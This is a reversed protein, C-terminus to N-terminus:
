QSATISTTSSVPLNGTTIVFVNVSYSGSALGGSLPAFATGQAGSALTLGGTTVAVTQGASNKWVAFVVLSQSTSWVNTATVSIGNFSGLTGYAASNIVVSQSIPVIVDVTIGTAVGSLGALSSASLGLADHGAFLGTITITYNVSSGLNNAGTITFQSSAAATGNITVVVSSANLDGQAAVIWAKVSQGYGIQANNATSFKMTPAATDVLVEYTQGVATNGLSDTTNFSVHHVGQSFTAAVSFIVDYASAIPATQVAGSDIKYTVSAISVAQPGTAAYGISTNAQGTFVVSATSSYIVGSEPTPGTIALTPLPSVVGISAPASTVSKGGLVGSARLTVAGLSTPMTWTIPGFSFATDSGGSPIYVNTASLPCTAACSASLGIQIQTIATNLAVNGYADSITVDVYITAGTAAHSAPTTLGSEYYTLVTFTSAKGSDTCASAPGASAPAIGTGHLCASAASDGSILLVNSSTDTIKTANAQFLASSGAVTDLTFLASAQGLANTTVSTSMAGNFGAPLMSNAGYDAATTASEWSHAQALYLQIPVGAQAIALSASVNVKNGAPVNPLANPFTVGKPAYVTPVPSATSFTSTYLLKSQGAGAFSAAAYTGSVAASLQGITGWTPSQFYAFPLSVVSVAGSPCATGLDTTGAMWHHGNTCTIVSPLGIADLLGGGSLATLTFSYATLSGSNLAVTNGFKDALSFSIATDNEAGSFTTLSTKGTNTTTGNTIIYHNGTSAQSSAFAWTMMTPPGNITTITGASTVPIVASTGVAANVQAADGATNSPQFTTTATGASNTYATAPTFSFTTTAGYEPATFVIPVGAQVPLITATETLAASGAVYNANATPTVTTIHTTPNIVQISFSPGTYFAVSSADQVKSTFTSTFPYTGAPSTATFTMSDSGGPPIGAGTGIVFQSVTYTVSNGSFVCNVLFGGPSCNTVTWGTPVNMTFGTITFQNSGPNSVTMTFVQGPTNGLAPNNGTVSITPLSANAALIPSAIPIMFLLGSFALLALITGSSFKTVYAKSHTNM